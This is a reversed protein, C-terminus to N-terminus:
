YSICLRSAPQQIGSGARQRHRKAAGSNPQRSARCIEDLISVFLANQVSFPTKELAFFSNESGDASIRM